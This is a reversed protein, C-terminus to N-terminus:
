SNENELRREGDMKAGCNPCYNLGEDPMGSHDYEFNCKSCVLIHCGEEVWEGHVVEVVDAAPITDLAYEIEEDTPDTDWGILSKKADEREIHEAM